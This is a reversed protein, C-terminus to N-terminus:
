SVTVVILARTSLLYTVIASQLCCVASRLLFQEATPPRSDATM